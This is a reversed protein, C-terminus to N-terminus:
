LHIYKQQAAVQGQVPMCHPTCTRQDVPFMCLMCLTLALTVIKGEAPRAMVAPIELWAQHGPRVPLDYWM